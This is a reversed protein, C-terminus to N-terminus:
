ELCFAGTLILFFYRYCLHEIRCVSVFQNTAIVVFHVYVLLSLVAVFPQMVIPAAVRFNLVGSATTM